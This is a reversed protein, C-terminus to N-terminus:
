VMLSESSKARKLARIHPSSRVTEIMRVRDFPKKLFKNAGNEAARVINDMVSDASLMVIFAESDIARIAELVEHGSLGPLHIDILIVDPVNEIYSTIAEEGTGCLALGYERGLLSAAYHATFRDDEVIMVLPETRRKRRAAISGVKHSDGMVRYAEQKKISLLKRDAFKQYATLQLSLVGAESFVEPFSATMEKYLGSINEGEADDNVRLLAFVDLDAFVYIYGEPNFAGAAKELSSVFQDRKAEAEAMRDHIKSPELSLEKHNLMKSLSFYLCRWGHPKGGLSELTTLFHHEASNQILEM